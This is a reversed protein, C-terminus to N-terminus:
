GVGAGAFLVEFVLPELRVLKSALVWHDLQMPAMLFWPLQPAHQAKAVTSDNSSLSQM